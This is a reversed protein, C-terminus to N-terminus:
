PLMQRRLHSPEGSNAETFQLLWSAAPSSPLQLLGVDSLHPLFAQQFLVHEPVLPRVVRTRLEGDQFLLLQEQVHSSRYAQADQRRSTVPQHWQQGLALWKGLDM